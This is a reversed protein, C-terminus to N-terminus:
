LLLADLRVPEPANDRQAIAAPFDETEQRLSWGRSPWLPSPTRELRTYWVGPTPARPGLHSVDTRSPQTVCRYVFPQNLRRM